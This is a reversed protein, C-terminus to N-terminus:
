ELPLQYLDYVMEAMRKLGNSIEKVKQPFPTAPDIMNDAIERIRVDGISIM